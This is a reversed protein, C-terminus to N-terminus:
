RVEGYNGDSKRIVEGGLLFHTKDQRTCMTLSAPAATFSGILDARIDLNRFTSCELNDGQTSEKAVFEVLQVVKGTRIQTNM